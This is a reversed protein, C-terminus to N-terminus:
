HQYQAPSPKLNHNACKTTLACALTGTGSFTPFLSTQRCLKRASTALAARLHQIPRQRDAFRSDFEDVLEFEDVPDLFLNEGLISELVISAAMQLQERSLKPLREAKLPIERLDNQHRLLVFTWASANRHKRAAGRDGEIEFTYNWDKPLRASHFEGDALAPARSIVSQALARLHRNLNPSIV